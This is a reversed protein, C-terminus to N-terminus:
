LAAGRSIEEALHREIKESAVGEAQLEARRRWAYVSRKAENESILSSVRCDTCLCRVGMARAEAGEQYAAMIQVSESASFWDPEYSESVAGATRGHRGDLRANLIADEVNPYLFERENIQRLQIRRERRQKHSENM